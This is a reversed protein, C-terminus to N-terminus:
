RAEKVDGDLSLNELADWPVSGDVRYVPLGSRAAEPCSDGIIILVIRRGARKMQMMSALLGDTVVATIVVMTSGWPLNRGESAVLRAIPMTEIQDIRALVEMIRLWQDSSRGPPLKLASGKGTWRNQNVYLGTRYGKDLCYRSVSAAAVIGLELLGPVSGWFPPVTTRVDYFIGMDITTTPEYLKTQVSGRRATTKWHVQKLSDGPSYDRVGATLIPDRFLHQRLRIDGFAQDAPIGLKDLPLVRPYVTLYDKDPITM